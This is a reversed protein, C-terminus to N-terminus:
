IKYWKNDFINEPSIVHLIHFFNFLLLKLSESSFYIRYMRVFKEDFDGKM